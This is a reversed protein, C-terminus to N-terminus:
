GVLRDGGRRTHAQRAARVGRSQCRPWGIRPDQHHRWRRTAARTHPDPLRLRAGRPTDGHIRLVSGTVAERITVGSRGITAMLSSCRDRPNTGIHAQMSLFTSWNFAQGHAPVLGSNQVYIVDGVPQRGFTVPPDGLGRAYSTVRVGPTAIIRVARETGDPGSWDPALAYAFRASALGTARRSADIEIGKGDIELTVGVLRGDSYTVGTTFENDTPLAPQVRSRPTDHSVAYEQVFPSRPAVSLADPDRMRSWHCILQLPANSDPTETVAVGHTSAIRVVRQGSTRRPEIYFTYREGRHGDSSIEINSGHLSILTHGVGLQHVVLDGSHVRVGPALPGSIAGHSASTGSQGHATGSGSTQARPIRIPVGRNQQMIPWLGAMGGGQPGQMCGTGSIAMM